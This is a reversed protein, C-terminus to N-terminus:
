QGSADRRAKYNELWDIIEQPKRPPTVNLKTLEDSLVDIHDIAVSMIYELESIEAKRAQKISGMEATLRHIEKKFSEVREELEKIRKTSKQLEEDRELLKYDLDGVTNEVRTIHEKLETVIAQWEGSTKTERESGIKRLTVFTGVLAALALIFEAPEM